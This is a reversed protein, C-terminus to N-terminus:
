QKVTLDEVFRLNDEETINEPMAKVFGVGNAIGIVHSPDNISDVIIAGNDGMVGGAVLSIGKLQARGMIKRKLFNAELVQLVISSIGARNDIRYVQCNKIKFENIQNATFNGIGIDYVRAGSAIMSLKGQFSAQKLGVGLLVEIGDSNESILDIKLLSLQTKINNALIGEGCVHVKKDSLRQEIARVFYIGADAWTTIDIYFFLQSTRINKSIWNIMEKSRPLKVDEDMMIYDFQGDSVEVFQKLSILDGLEVFAIINSISERVHPVLTQSDKETPFQQIVLISSKNTREVLEQTQFIREKFRNISSRM